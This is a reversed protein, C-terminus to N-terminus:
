VRHILRRSAYLYGTLHIGPCVLSTIQFPLITLNQFSFSFHKPIIHKAPQRREQDTCCLSYSQMIASQQYSLSQVNRRLLFKLPRSTLLLFKSSITPFMERILEGLSEPTHFPQLFMSKETLIRERQPCNGM